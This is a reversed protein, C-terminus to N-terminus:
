NRKRVNGASSTHMDIIEPNGRYIIDGASSCSFRAKQTVFVRANGASSVSVEAEESELDFAYLDGASSLDAHLTNTKGQLNANGSSSIDIDIKEAMVDLKLDGASSLKIRLNGTHLTNEGKVDGASSIHIENLKKYGVYIKKSKAMRINVDSYIRLENGSVETKIYEMLNEDAEVKLFIEDGETIFVDFGNSVRISNFDGIQRTEETVDGNGTVSEGLNIVCGQLLFTSLFALTTYIYKMM